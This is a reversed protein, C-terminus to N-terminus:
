HTNWLMKITSLVFLNVLRYNTYKHTVSRCAYNSNPMAIDIQIMSLINQKIESENNRIFSSM